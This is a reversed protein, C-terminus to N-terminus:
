LSNKLGAKEGAADQRQGHSKVSTFYSNYKEDKRKVPQEEKHELGSLDLPPIAYVEQEGKGPVGCVKSEEPRFM